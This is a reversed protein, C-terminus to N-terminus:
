KVIGRPIESMKETEEIGFKGAPVELDELDFMEFNLERDRTDQREM